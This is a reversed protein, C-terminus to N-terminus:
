SNNNSVCICDCKWKICQLCYVTSLLPVSTDSDINFVIASRFHHFDHAEPSPLFPLHYGCHAITTSLYALCYWMWVTAVHSSMLLPGVVVPLVNSVLHELPHAYISTLSIPSVWEHHMKHIRAYLHRSHLLRYCM